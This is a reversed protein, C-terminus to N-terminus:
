CKQVALIWCSVKWFCFDKYTGEFGVSPFLASNFSFTTANQNFGPHQVMVNWDTYNRKYNYNSITLKIRWHYMYNNKVHWHVRVPCMHETCQVIDFNEFNVSSSLPYGERTGHFVSLSLHSQLQFYPLLYIGLYSNLISSLILFWRVCTHTKESAERCGCSCSPCSTISPNYFTSLSVCCIPTRNAM